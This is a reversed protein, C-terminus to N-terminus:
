EGMCGRVWACREEVIDAHYSAQPDRRERKSRPSDTGDCRCKPDRRAHSPAWRHLRSRRGNGIITHSVMDWLLTYCPPLQATFFTSLCRGSNCVGRYCCCHHYNYCYTGGSSSSVEHWTVDMAIFDKDFRHFVRTDRIRMVGGDIRVFLRYDNRELPDGTTVTRTM